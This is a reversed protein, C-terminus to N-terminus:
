FHTDLYGFLTDLAEDELRPLGGDVRGRRSEEHAAHNGFRSEGHDVSLGGAALGEEAAVESACDGAANGPPTQLDLLARDGVDRRFVCRPHPCADLCVNAM